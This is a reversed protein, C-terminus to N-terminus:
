RPSIFDLLDITKERLTSLRIAMSKLLTSIKSCWAPLDEVQKHVKPNVSFHEQNLAASVPLLTSARAGARGAGEGGRDDQAHGAPEWNAEWHPHPQGGDDARWCTWSPMTSTLTTGSRLSAIYVPRLSSCLDLSLLSYCLLPPFPFTGESQVEQHVTCVCLMTLSWWM